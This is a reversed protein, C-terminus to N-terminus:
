TPLSEKRLSATLTPKIVKGLQNKPLEALVRVEKPVKYAALLSKAHARLDTENCAHAQGPRPVV